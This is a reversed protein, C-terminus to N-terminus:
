VRRGTRGDEQSAKVQPLGDQNQQPRAASLNYQSATPKNLSWLQLRSQFCHLRRAPILEIGNSNPQLVGQLYICFDFSVSDLAPISSNEVEWAALGGTYGLRGRLIDATEGRATSEEGLEDNAQITSGDHRTLSEM